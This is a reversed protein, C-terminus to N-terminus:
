NLKFTLQLWISCYLPQQHSPSENIKNNQDTCLNLNLNGPLPVIIFHFYVAILLLYNRNKDHNVFNIHFICQNRTNQAKFPYESWLCRILTSHKRQRLKHWISCYLPQQHSPSENIKYNQDTCLNLNLNGPLPVIIFHFYVAIFLL